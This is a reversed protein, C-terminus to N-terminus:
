VEDGLLLLDVGGLRADLARHRDPRALADAEAERDLERDRVGRNGLRLECGESGLGVLLDARVRVRRAAVDVDLELDDAASGGWAEEDRSQTRCFNTRVSVIQCRGHM